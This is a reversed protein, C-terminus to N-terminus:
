AQEVPVGQGRAIRVGPTDAWETGAVPLGGRGHRVFRVGPRAAIYRELEDRYVLLTADTFAEQGQGDTEGLLPSRRIDYRSATGPAHSQGGPYCLDVGVLHVVTAGMHVAEDVALHMVSPGPPDRTLVRKPGEWDRPISGHVGYAYVLTRSTDVGSFHLPMFPSPDLVVTVGPFIGAAQLPRLLTSAAVTLLGASRIWDYSEPATPGGAIVIAHM